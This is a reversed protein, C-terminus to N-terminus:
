GRSLQKQLAVAKGFYSRGLDELVLHPDLSTLANLFELGIFKADVWSVIAAISTGDLLTLALPDGVLPIAGEVIRLKAGTQSMDVLDCILRIRRNFIAVHQREKIRGSGRREIGHAHEDNQKALGPAARDIPVPNQAM